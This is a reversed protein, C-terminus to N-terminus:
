KELLLLYILKEVSFTYDPVVWPVKVPMLM